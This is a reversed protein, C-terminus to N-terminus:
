RTSPPTIGEDTGRRWLLLGLIVLLVPPISNILGRQVSGIFGQPGVWHISADLVLYLTLLWHLSRSPGDRRAQWLFVLGVAIALTGFEQTLHNLYSEPPAARYLAGVDDGLWQYSIWSAPLAISGAGVLIYLAGLLAYVARTITRIMM